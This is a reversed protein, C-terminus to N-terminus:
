TQEGGDLDWCLHRHKWLVISQDHMVCYTRFRTNLRRCFFSVAFCDFSCGTGLRMQGYTSLPSDFCPSLIEVVLHTSAVDLACALMEVCLSMLRHSTCVTIYYSVFCRPHCRLHAHSTSPCRSHCVSFLSPVMCVSLWKCMCVCPMPFVSRESRCPAGHSRIPRAACNRGPTSGPTAKEQSAM